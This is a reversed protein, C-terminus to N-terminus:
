LTDTTVKLNTRRCDLTNGNLFEISDKPECMVMECFYIKHDDDAIAYVQGTENEDTEYHWTYSEVLNYDDISCLLNRGYTLKVEFFPRRFNDQVLRLLNVINDRKYSEEYMFENAELYAEIKSNYDSILFENDTPPNKLRVICKSPYNIINAMPKGGFWEEVPHYDNITPIKYKPKLIVLNKRRLDRMYDDKFKIRNKNVGTIMEKLYLTKTKGNRYITTIVNIHKDDFDWAYEKLLNEDEIDCYLTTTGIKFEIYRDNDAHLIFRYKNLKKRNKGKGVTEGGIWPSVM